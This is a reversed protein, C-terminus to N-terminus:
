FFFLLRLLLPFFSIAAPPLPASPFRYEGVRSRGGAHAFFPPAGRCPVWSPAAPERASSGEFPTEGPLYSRGPHGGEEARAESDEPLHCDERPRPSALLPAAPHNRESKLGLGPARGLFNRPVWM